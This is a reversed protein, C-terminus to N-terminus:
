EKGMTFTCSEMYAEALWYPISASEAIDTVVNHKFQRGFEDAFMKRFDTVSLDADSM